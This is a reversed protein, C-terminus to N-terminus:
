RIRYFERGFISIVLLHRDTEYIKSMKYKLVTFVSGLKTGPFNIVYGMPYDGEALLPRKFM